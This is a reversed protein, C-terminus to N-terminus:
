PTVRAAAVCFIFNVVKEGINIEGVQSKYIRQLINIYIAQVDQDELASWLAPHCFSDFAKQFDIAVIWLPLNYELTKEILQRATFLHHKIKAKTPM